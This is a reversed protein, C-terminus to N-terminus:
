QKCNELMKQIVRKESAIHSLKNKLVISDFKAVYEWQYQHIPPMGYFPGPLFISTKKPAEDKAAQLFARREVATLYLRNGEQDFLQMEANYHSTAAM